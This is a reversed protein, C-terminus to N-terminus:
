SVLTVTVEQCEVLGMTAYIRHELL